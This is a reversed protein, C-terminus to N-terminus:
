RYLLQTMCFLISIKPFIRNVSLFKSKEAMCHNYASTSTVVDQVKIYSFEDITASKLRGELDKKIPTLGDLDHM